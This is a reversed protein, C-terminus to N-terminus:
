TLKVAKRQVVIQQFTHRFNRQIAVNVATNNAM